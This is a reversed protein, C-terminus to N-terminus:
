DGTERLFFIEGKAHYTWGDKNWERLVVKDARGYQTLLTWFQQELWTYAAPLHRSVGKSGFFGNSRPSATIINSRFRSRLVSRAYEPNISFYGTTFDLRGDPWEDAYGLIQPVCNTEHHINLPGMQLLPVLFVQNQSSEQSCSLAQTSQFWERTLREVESQMQQKWRVSGVPNESFRNGFLLRGEDWIQSFPTHYTSLESRMPEAQLSYSYRAALTLLDHLYASVSVDDLVLYRDRRNTFYDNSLNARGSFIFM